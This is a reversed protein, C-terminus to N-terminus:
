LTAISREIERVADKRTYRTRFDGEVSWLRRGGSGLVAHIEGAFTGNIMVAYVPLSVKKGKGNIAWGPAQKKLKTM